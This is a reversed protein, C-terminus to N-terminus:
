RNRKGPRGHDFRVSSRKGADSRHGDVVAYVNRGSTDADSYTYRDTDADSDSYANGDADTDANSYANGDADTYTDAAPRRLM